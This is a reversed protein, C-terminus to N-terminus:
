RKRPEPRPAVTSEPEAGGEQCRPCAGEDEAEVIRTIQREWDDGYERAIRARAHERGAFRLRAIEDRSREEESVLRAGGATVRFRRFTVPGDYFALRSLPMSYRYVVIEEHDPTEGTIVDMTLRTPDSPAPVYEELSGAEPGILRALTRVHETSGMMSTGFAILMTPERGNGLM